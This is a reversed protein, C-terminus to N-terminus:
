RVVEVVTLRLKTSDLGLDLSFSELQLTRTSPQSFHSFSPFSAMLLRLWFIRRSCVRLMMATPETRWEGWCRPVKRSQPATWGCWTSWLQMKYAEVSFEQFKISVGTTKRRCGENEGAHPDVSRCNACVSKPRVSGEFGVCEQSEPQHDTLRHGTLYAIVEFIKANWFLSRFNNVFTVLWRRREFRFRVKVEHIKFEIIWKRRPNLKRSPEYEGDGGHFRWSQRRDMRHLCPNGARVLTQVCGSASDVAPFAEQLCLFSPCPLLRSRWTGFFTKMGSGIANRVSITIGVSKVPNQVQDDKYQQWDICRKLIPIVGHLRGYEDGEGQAVDDDDINRPQDVRRVEDPPQVLVVFLRIRIHDENDGFPVTWM